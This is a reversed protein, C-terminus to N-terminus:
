AQQARPAPEMEAEAPQLDAPHRAAARELAAARGRARLLVEALRPQEGGAAPDCGAFTVASPPDATLQKALAAAVARYGDILLRSVDLADADNGFGNGLEEGPLADAPRSSVGLLDRVTNNYEFRTIRRLPARPVHPEACTLPDTTTGPVM